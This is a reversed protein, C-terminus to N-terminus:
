TQPGIDMEPDLSYNRTIPPTGAQAAIVGVSFEFRRASHAREGQGPFNDFRAVKGLYLFWTRGGGSNALTESLLFTTQVSAPTVPHLFPSAFGQNPMTPRGFCVVVTLKTNAFFVGPAAVTGPFPAVRVGMDGENASAHPIHLSGSEADGIQRWSQGAVLTDPDFGPFTPPPGGRLKMWNKSFDFPSGTTPSVDGKFLGNTQDFDFLLNLLFM